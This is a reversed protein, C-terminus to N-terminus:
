EERMSIPKQLIETLIFQQRLTQPRLWARLSNATINPRRVIPPIIPAESRMASRVSEVPAEPVPPPPQPLRPKKGFLKKSARWGPQGPLAPPAPKEGAQIVERLQKRKEQETRKKLASMASTAFWVLFFIVGFIVKMQASEGEALINTLHNM